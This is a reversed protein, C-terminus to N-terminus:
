GMKAQFPVDFNGLGRDLKLISYDQPSLEIVLLEAAKTPFVRDGCTYVDISAYGLDPWTHISAHSEALAIVGTVGQPSFKHFYVNLVTAGTSEISFRFKTKLSELDDLLTSNCGYFELIFHEGLKVM